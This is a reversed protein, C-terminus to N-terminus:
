FMSCFVAGAAHQEELHQRAAAADQLRAELQSLQKQAAKSEALAAAM